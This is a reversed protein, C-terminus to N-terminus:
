AGETVDVCVVCMMEEVAVVNDGRSKHVFGAQITSSIALHLSLSAPLGSALSEGCVLTLPTDRDVAIPPAPCSSLDKISVTSQRGDPYHIHVYSSNIDMLQIEDVLSCVSVMM